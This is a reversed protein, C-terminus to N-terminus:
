EQTQKDAAEPKPNNDIWDWIDEDFIWSGGGPPPPIDRAETLEGINKEINM